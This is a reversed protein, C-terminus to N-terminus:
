SWRKDTFDFKPLRKLLNKQNLWSTFAELFCLYTLYNEEVRKNSIFIDNGTRVYNTKATGVMNEFDRFNILEDKPKIRANEFKNLIAVCLSEKKEKENHRLQEDLKQETLLAKAIINLEEDTLELLIL